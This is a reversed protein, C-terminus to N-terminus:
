KNLKIFMDVDSPYLTGSSKDDNSCCSKKNSAKPKSTKSCKTKSESEKASCYGTTEVPKVQISTPEPDCTADGCCNDPKVVVKPTCCGSDENKKVSCCSDAQVGKPQQEDCCGASECCDDGPESHSLSHKDDGGGCCSDNGDDCCGTPKVENGKGKGDGCCSVAEGHQSEEIIDNLQPGSSCCNSGYQRSRQCGGNGDSICDGIMIRVVTESGSISEDAQNANSPSNHDAHRDNAPVSHVHTGCCDDRANAM